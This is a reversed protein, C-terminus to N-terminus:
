LDYYTADKIILGEKFTLITVIPLTFKTSDPATGTSVFEVTVTEGSAYIHIVEDHIDPFMKQMEAYKKITEARTQLVYEKGLSPDLFMASDSYLDAMAKWDHGNFAVFLSKAVITHSEGPQVSSSCAALLLLMSGLIFQKM